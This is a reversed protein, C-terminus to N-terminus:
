GPSLDELCLSNMKGTSLLRDITFKGYRDGFGLGTGGGPCGFSSRDFFALRTKKSVAVLKTDVCGRSSGEKFHVADDPKDDTLMIAVPQMKPKLAKVLTSNM